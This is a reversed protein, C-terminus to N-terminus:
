TIVLYFLLLLFILLTPIYLCLPSHQEPLSLISEGGFFIDCLVIPDRVYGICILCKDKKLKEWVVWIQKGCMGLKGGDMNYKSKIIININISLLIVVFVIFLTPIYLCFRPFSLRPIIYHKGGLFLIVCYSWLLIVCCLLIVIPDCCLLIVIPDCYSWLLIVIPDCYSWRLSIM